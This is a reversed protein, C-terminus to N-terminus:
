PSPAWLQCYALIWAAAWVVWVVLITKIPPPKEDENEVSM